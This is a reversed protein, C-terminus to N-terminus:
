ANEEAMSITKLYRQVQTAREQGCRLEARIRRIAPLKGARTEAVLPRPIEAVKYGNVAPVPVAVPASQARVWRLWLELSFTALTFAIAPWGAVAAAVWGFRIGSEVNVFATAIIGAGIPLWAPRWRGESAMLFGSGALVLFDTLFPFMRANALSQHVSLALDESHTYSQIGALVAVLAVPITIAILVRRDNM